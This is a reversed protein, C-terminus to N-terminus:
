AGLIVTVNGSSMEVVVVPITSIDTIPVSHVTTVSLTTTIYALSTTTLDTTISTSEFPSLSAETTIHVASSSHEYNIIAISYLPYWRNFNCLLKVM